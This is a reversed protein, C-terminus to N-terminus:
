PATEKHFNHKERCHRKEHNLIRLFKRIDPEPATELPSDPTMIVCPEAGYWAFGLVGPGKRARRGIREISEAPRILWLIDPKWVETVSESASRDHAQGASASFLLILAAALLRM